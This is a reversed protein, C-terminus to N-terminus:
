HRVCLPEDPWGVWYVQCSKSVGKDTTKEKVDQRPFTRIQYQYDVSCRLCVQCLDQSSGRFCNQRCVKCRGYENDADDTAAVTPERVLAKGMRRWIRGAGSVFGARQESNPLTRRLLSRTSLTKSAHPSANTPITSYMASARTQQSISVTGSPTRM